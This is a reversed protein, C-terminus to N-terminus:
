FATCAASETHRPPHLMRDRVPLCRCATTPLPLCPVAVCEQFWVPYTSNTFLSNFAAGEAAVAGAREAMSEAAASSSPVIESYFNGLAEGVYNRLPLRWGFVLTVAKTAGAAVVAKAAVAGSGAAAAVGDLAGNGVFDKWIAAADDATSVSVAVGDGGKALMTYEGVAASPDMTSEADFVTNTRSHLLQGGGPAASWVGRVGSAAPSGESWGVPPLHAWDVSSDVRTRYQQVAPAGSHLVCGPGPVAPLAPVAPTGFSVATDGKKPIMDRGTPKMICCGQGPKGKCQGAIEAAIEDWVFGGCGKTAHCHTYCQQITAFPRRLDGPGLNGERIDSIGTFSSQVLIARVVSLVNHIPTEPDKIGHDPMVRAPVAPVAPVAPTAQSDLDWYSCNPTASCAKLCGAASLGAVIKIVSPDRPDTRRSTSATSALPLTLLFSFNVAADGNNELVLTFAAAPLASANEDHLKFASYAYVTAAVGRPLRSDSLGLRAIPYAGSYNLAEAAPLGGPPHTRMTTAFGSGLRLGLLAGELIPLKSNQVKDTALAPGQNEIQWDAFSGDARLEFTGTGLGGLPM